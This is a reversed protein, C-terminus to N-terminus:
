DIRFLRLLQRASSGFTYAFLPTLSVVLLVALVRLHQYEKGSLFGILQDQYTFVGVFIVAAIAVFVALRIIQRPGFEFQEHLEADEIVPVTLRDALLSKLDRKLRIQASASKGSFLNGLVIMSYSTRRQLASSLADINGYFTSSGGSCGRKALEDLCRAINEDAKVVPATDDGIGGNYEREKEWPRTSTSDQDVVYESAGPCEGGGAMCMLEVAADWKDAVRMVDTFGLSNSEFKEQVYLICTQAITTNVEKIEKISSLVEKVYPAVEAQQPLYTVQIVGDNATVKVNAFSTREDKTLAFHAKNALYLNYIAKEAAPTQRFDPLEAIACLASAANSIGTQDLNIVLDYNFPDGWDIGYLFRVWKDRDTDISEIYSKAKKRNLSMEQMLYRIRFELDALVRIRLINPVGPLLMHGTHGQYVVNKELIRRCLLMTMCALYQDRERAMRKYVGPPKIMATQLKGVPVGMRTAQESLDERSLYSYGLKEALREALERGGSYTGRSITIIAM